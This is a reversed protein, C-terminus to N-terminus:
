EDNCKKNQSSSDDIRLHEQPTMISEEDDDVRLRKQPRTVSEDEEVIIRLHERSEM